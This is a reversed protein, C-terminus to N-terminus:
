GPRRTRARRYERRDTGAAAPVTRPVIRDGAKATDLARGAAELLEDVTLGDDASRAPGISVTVDQVVVQGRATRVEVRLTRVQGALRDAVVLLDDDVAPLLVAFGRHGHRGLVDHARAAGPLANGVAALVDDAAARRAPRRDPPRGRRHAPHRRDPQSQQGAADRPPRMMGAGLPGLLCPHVLVLRHVAQALSGLAPRVVEVVAGGDAGRVPQEPVPREIEVDEGGFECAHPVARDVEGRDPQGRAPRSRTRSRDPGRACGRQIRGPAPEGGPDRHAPEGREGVNSASAAGSHAGRPSRVGVESRSEDMRSYRLTRMQSAEHVNNLETWSASIASATVM